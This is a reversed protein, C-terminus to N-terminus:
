GLRDYEDHWPGRGGPPDYSSAVARAKELAALADASDLLQQTKLAKLLGSTAVAIGVAAATPADPVEYIAFGDHDGFMWYFAELRGGAGEIVARAAEARDAPHAAMRATAEATYSFFTVYKVMNM